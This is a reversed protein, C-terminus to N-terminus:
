VIETLDLFLNEYQSKRIRGQPEEFCNRFLIIGNETVYFDNQNKIKRKPKGLIRVAETLTILRQKDTLWTQATRKYFIPKKDNMVIHDTYVSFIKGDNKTVNYTSCLSFPYSVIATKRRRNANHPPANFSVASVENHDSTDSEYRSGTKKHDVNNNDSETGNNSKHFLSIFCIICRIVTEKYFDSIIESDPLYPFKMCFSPLPSQSLIDDSYGNDKLFTNINSETVKIEKIDLM